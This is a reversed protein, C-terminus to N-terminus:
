DSALFSLVAAAAEKPTAQLLGHPGELRVVQLAPLVGRLDLAATGPVVLDRSAQLYLVPMRLGAFQQLLNVAMVAKLRARLVAVPLAALAQSLLMRSEAPADNGLLARM